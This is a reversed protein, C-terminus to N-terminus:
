SSSRAVFRWPRQERGCQREARAASNRGDFSSVEHDSSEPMRSSFFGRLDDDVCVADNRPRRGSSCSEPQGRGALRHRQEADRSGRPRGNRYPKAVAILARCEATTSLEPIARASRERHQGATPSRGRALRRAAPPPRRTLIGADALFRRVGSSSSARCSPLANGVERVSGCRPREGSQSARLSMRLAQERKAVVLLFRQRRHPPAPPRSHRRRCGCASRNSDFASSVRQSAPVRYIGRHDFGVFELTGGSRRAARRRCSSATSRASRRLPEGFVDALRFGALLEFDEDPARCRALREVVHQTRGAPSPLVVSACMTAASIPTFRRWVLPGNEFAGAIERREQRVRVARRATM